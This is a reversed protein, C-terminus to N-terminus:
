EDFSLPSMVFFVVQGFAGTVKEEARTCVNWGLDSKNKLETIFAETSDNEGLRFLYGIFPISGIMPSFLAGDRFGKIESTFGTLLGEEVKKAIGPFPFADTEILQEGLETMTIERNDALLIKWENLLENAPSLAPASETEESETETQKEEERSITRNECSFLLLFLLLAPFFIKKM